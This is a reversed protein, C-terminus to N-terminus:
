YSHTSLALVLYLTALSTDILTLLLDECQRKLHSKITGATKPCKWAAAGRVGCSPGAALLAPPDNDKGNNVLGRSMPKIELSASEM